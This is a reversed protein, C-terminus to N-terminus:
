IKYIRIEIFILIKKRFHKLVVFVFSKDFGDDGFFNIFEKIKVFACVTMGFSLSKVGLFDHLNELLVTKYKVMGFSVMIIVLMRVSWFGHEGDSNRVHVPHNPSSEALFM